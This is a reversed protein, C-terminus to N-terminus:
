LIFFLIIVILMIVLLVVIVIWQRRDSTMHLTKAMKKMVHDLKSDTVDMEKAFEDLMISQEDLENGIQHSMDKLVRVSSGIKDLQDDQDNIILKQRSQADEIFRDNYSEVESDLQTYKNQLRDSGHGSLLAQRIGVDGRSSSSSSGLNRLSRSLHDKISRVASKTRDIFSRRERIEALEISFKKPNKEVIGITEELDDLDWEIARLSNRLENTTWDYEEHYSKGTQEGLECWRNYLAKTTETNKLVEEKVVFFPDELSM